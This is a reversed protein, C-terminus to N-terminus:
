VWAAACQRHKQQIMRILRSREIQPHQEALQNLLVRFRPLKHPSAQDALMLEDYALILAELEPKM